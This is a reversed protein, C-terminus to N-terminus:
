VQLWKLNRTNLSVGVHGGHLQLFLQKITELLKLELLELWKEELDDPRPWSARAEVAEGSRQTDIKRTVKM